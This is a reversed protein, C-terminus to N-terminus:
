LKEIINQFDINTKKGDQLDKMAKNIINETEKVVNNLYQNPYKINKNSYCAIYYSLQELEVKCQPIFTRKAAPYADDTRYPNKQWNNLLLKLEKTDNEYRALLMRVDAYENKLSVDSISDFMRIYTENKKPNSRFDLRSWAFSIVATDMSAIKAYYQKVPIKEKRLQDNEVKLRNMQITQANLKTQLLKISDRLILLSDVKQVNETDKQAYIGTSLLELLLLSSVVILRFEKM